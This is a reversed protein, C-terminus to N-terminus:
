QKNHVASFLHSNFWFESATWGEGGSHCCFQSHSSGFFLSSSFWSHSVKYSKLIIIILLGHSQGSQVTEFETAPRQPNCHLSAIPHPNHQQFHVIEAELQRPCFSVRHSTMRGQQQTLQQIAPSLLEKLLGKGDLQKISNVAVSSTHLPSPIQSVECEKSVWLALFHQSHSTALRVLVYFVGPEAHSTSLCVDATVEMIQDPFLEVVKVTRAHFHPSSTETFHIEDPSYTVHESLTLGEATLLRQCRTSCYSLSVMSKDISTYGPVAPKMCATCLGSCYWCYGAFCVHDLSRCPENDVLHRCESLCFSHVILM